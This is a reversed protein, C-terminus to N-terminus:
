RPEGDSGRPGCGVRRFLNYFSLAIGLMAGAVLLWPRTSLWSDAKYGLYTCLVVPAAIEFGL